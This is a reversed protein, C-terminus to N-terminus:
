VDYLLLVGREERTKGGIRLEQVLATALEELPKDGASRVFVFRVDVDSERHILGLYQEFRPVDGPPLVGAVDLMLRCGSEGPCLKQHPGSAIATRARSKWSKWGWVSASAVAATVAAIALLRLIRTM